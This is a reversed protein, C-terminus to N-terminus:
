LKIAEACAQPDSLDAQGRGLAKVETFAQLEIAVQGTSGFVLIM